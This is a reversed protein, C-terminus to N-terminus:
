RKSGTGLNEAGRLPRVANEPPSALLAALAGARWGEYALALALGVLAFAAVIFLRKPRSKRTPLAPADLVLFTSVERAETAKASELRELAFVLTAEAVRRDRYLTEFESRLKPVDLAAPFMRGAEKGRAPPEGQSAAANTPEELDRLKEKMVFLQSELQKTTPEDRSSFTRAYDLELQKSIRQNNLAALSSVVAKAQTDLDIIKHREQFERMRAGVENAQSRLEKVRQELFRVEESASSAGVRRFVQNGYEAFYSLLEQVFRPDKDECSLQVLNPKPLSKVSCHRWLAERTTEQYKERYRTRLDFKEIVADTVSISQLVAAIRTADAAGGVAGDLFGSALGAADGGLMSALGGASRQAKAPVVTLVSRYWKPALLAYSVGLTVAILVAATIRKQAARSRLFAVASPSSTPAM